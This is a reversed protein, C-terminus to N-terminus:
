SKHADVGMPGPPSLIDIIMTDELAAVGHWVWSPLQLVEGAGMEIERQDGQPGVTWRVRGSIVVAMQESEHQHLPVVCGKELLVRALLMHEGEVKWRTLLPIPTDRILSEWKHPIADKM